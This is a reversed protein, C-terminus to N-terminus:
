TPVRTVPDFTKSIEDARVTPEGGQLKLGHEAFIREREGTSEIENLYGITADIVSDLAEGIDDAFSLGLETCVGQWATKM